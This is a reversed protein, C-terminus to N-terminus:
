NKLEFKPSTYNPRPTISIMLKITNIDGAGMFKMSIKDGELFNVTNRNTAMEKLSLSNPDWFDFFLTYIDQTPGTIIAKTIQANKNLSAVATMTSDPHEKRSPALAIIRFETENASVEVQYNKSNLYTVLEYWWMFQAGIFTCAMKSRSKAQLKKQYDYQDETGYQFAFEASDLKLEEWRHQQGIGKLSSM